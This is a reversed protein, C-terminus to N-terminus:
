CKTIQGAERVCNVRSLIESAICLSKGDKHLCTPLCGKFALAEMSEIIGLM